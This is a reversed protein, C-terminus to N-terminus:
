YESLVTPISVKQSNESGWRVTVDIRKYGSGISETLLDSSGVETVVINRTYVSFDSSFNEDPYSESLISAYGYAAKDSVIIELRERCLNAAIINLDAQLAGKTANEFLSMIGVMGVSIIVVTLLLEIVTYGKSFIKM